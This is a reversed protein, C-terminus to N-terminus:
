KKKTLLDDRKLIKKIVIYLFVLVIVFTLLSSIVSGFDFNVGRIILSLNNIKDGPIILQIFPTFVGKVISDVVEKSIQAVIVGIALGVVSYEKLFEWLEQTFQSPKEKLREFEERM